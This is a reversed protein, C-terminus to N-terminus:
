KSRQPVGHQPQAKSYKNHMPGTQWPGEGPGIWVVSVSVFSVTSMVAVECSVELTYASTSLTTMVGQYGNATPV